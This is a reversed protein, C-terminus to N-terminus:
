KYEPTGLTYYESKNIWEELQPSYTTGVFDVVKITEAKQTTNNLFIASIAYAGSVAAVGLFALTVGLIIPLM